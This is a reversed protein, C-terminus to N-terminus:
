HVEAVQQLLLQVFDVQEVAELEKVVVLILVAVEAELLL